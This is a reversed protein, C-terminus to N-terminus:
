TAGFIINVGYANDFSLATLAIFNSTKGSQVKGIVIGTKANPSNLSPNPCQSLIEVANDFIMDVNDQPIEDQLLQEAIKKKFYGECDICWSSEDSSLINMSIPHTM